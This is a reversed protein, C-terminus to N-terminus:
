MHASDRYDPSPLYSPAETDSWALQLWQFLYDFSGLVGLKAFRGLISGSLVDCIPDDVGTRRASNM